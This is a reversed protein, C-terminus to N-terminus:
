IAQSAYIHPIYPQLHNQGQRRIPIGAVRAVWITLGRISQARRPSTKGGCESIELQKFVGEILDITLEKEGTTTQRIINQIPAFGLLAEAVIRHTTDKDERAFSSHLTEICEYIGSSRGLRTIRILGIEALFDATYQGHRAIYKKARAKSGSSLGLKYANNEGMYILKLALILRKIGIQPLKIEKESYSSEQQTITRWDINQSIIQFDYFKILKREPFVAYTIEFTKGTIKHMSGCVVPNIGIDSLAEGREELQKLVPLLEEELQDDWLINNSRQLWQKIEANAYDFRFMM